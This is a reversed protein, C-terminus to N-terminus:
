PKNKNKLSPRAIYLGSQGLIQSGRTEAEQMSTNYAHAVM